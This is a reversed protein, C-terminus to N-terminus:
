MAFPISMHVEVVAAADSANQVDLRVCLHAVEVHCRPLGVVTYRLHLSQNVSQRWVYCICVRLLGRLFLACYVERLLVELELSFCSLHSAYRVGALM